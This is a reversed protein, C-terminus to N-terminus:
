AMQIISRYIRNQYDNKNNNFSNIKLNIFLKLNKIVINKIMKLQKLMQELNELELELPQQNKRNKINIIYKRNEEVGIVIIILMKKTSM